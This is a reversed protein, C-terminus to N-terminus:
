SYTLGTLLTCHGPKTFFPAQDTYNRIEYGAVTASELFIRGNNPKPREFTMDASGIRRISKKEADVGQDLPVLAAMSQFMMDHPVVVIRGVQSHFELAEVGNVHKNPGYSADSRRTAMVQENLSEFGRSPVIACVGSRAGKVASKYAAKILAASTLPGSVAHTNPKWLPHAAVTIDHIATAAFMPILGLAEQNAGSSDGLVATDRYIIHGAVIGTTTGTVTIYPDSLDDMNVGTVTLAGRQITERDSQYVDIVSNIAGMWIGPAFYAPNIHINQSDLSAVVGLGYASNGHLCSIEINRRMGLALDTFQKDAMSTFAKQGAGNTRFLDRYGVAKQGIIQSPTIKANDGEASISGRLTPTRQNGGLTYGHEYELDVAEVFQGGVEQGTVYPWMKQLKDHETLVSTLGGYRDKFLFDADAFESM